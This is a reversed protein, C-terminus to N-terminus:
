IAKSRPGYNNGMGGPLPGVVRDYRGFYLRLFPFIWWMLKAAAKLSLCAAIIQVHAFRRQICQSGSCWHVWKIHPCQIYAEM